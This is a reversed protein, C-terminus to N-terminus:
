VREWHYTARDEIVRFGECWSLQPFIRDFLGLMMLEIFPSHGVVLAQTDNPMEALWQKFAVAADYAISRATLSSKTLAAEMMDEGHAEAEHCVGSWLALAEATTSVLLHPPFSLPEIKPFDGAGQAFAQLTEQTRKLPSQFLATFTRGRLQQMGIQQALEFGAPSLDANGSGQKISHRRIEVLRM